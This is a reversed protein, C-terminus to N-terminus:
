GKQVFCKDLSFYKLSISNMWACFSWNFDFRILAKVLINWYSFLIEASNRYLNEFSLWSFKLVDKIERENKFYNVEKLM